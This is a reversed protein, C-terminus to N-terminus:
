FLVRSSSKDNASFLVGSYITQLGKPNHGVPCSSFLADRFSPDTAFDVLKEKSITALTCTNQLRIKIGNIYNRKVLNTNGKFRLFIQDM